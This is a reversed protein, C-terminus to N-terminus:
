VRPCPMLDHRTIIGSMNRAVNLELLHRLGLGRFVRYVKTVGSDETVYYLSPNSHPRFDM